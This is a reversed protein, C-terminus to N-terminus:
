YCTKDHMNFIIKYNSFGKLYQEDIYGIANVDKEIKHMLATPTSLEEPPNEGGTFIKASWYSLLQQQTKNMVSKYFKTKIDTDALDYVAVNKLRNSLAGKKLFLDSLNRCNLNTVVSNANTIVVIDANITSFLLLSM